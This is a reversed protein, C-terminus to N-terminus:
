GDGDGTRAAQSTLPLEVRVTTGGHHRSQIDVSGEHNTVIRHVLTLGLGTGHGPSRTTFFPDLVRGLHDPQIGEGNDRVTVLLRQDKRDTRLGVISGRQSAEVANKLLNIIVHEIETPRMSLFLPEPFLDLKIAVEHGEAIKHMHRAATRVVENLDEVTSTTAEDRAFRLLDRTIRAARKAQAVISRLSQECVAPGDADGKAVLATEAAALMVALPNNIEHAIGAALTGISALRDAVGLREELTAQREQRRYSDCLVSLAYRYREIQNQQRPRYGGPRNAVGVMGIVDGEQLLPTGLFCRLPPHGPPLGSSRPDAQPANSLVVNGTTLVHGFLNSLSTFELYGRERYGRLADEYFERGEVEHWRIGEHALVRLVPGQLAVGAFGYESETENIVTNLLSAFAQQWSGTRLFATLARNIAQLQETRERLLAVDAVERPLPSESTEVGDTM